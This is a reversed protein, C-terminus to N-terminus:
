EVTNAPYNAYKEELYNKPQYEYKRGIFQQLGKVVAEHNRTMRVSSTSELPYMIGIMDSPGLQRQVFRSLPERVALSAGRRVHYDDLFIAFLRVDEKAAEAEEDYDSRIPKPPGEAAAMAGGDLKILKFTDIKQAKNDETVDFDAPQLDAVANGQKDSVIVDVRVFNIGTRFIPPQTAPPPPQQQPQQQQQPPQPEAERKDYRPAGALEMSATIVLGIIAARAIRRAPIGM